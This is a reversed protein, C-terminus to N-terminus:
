ENLPRKEPMGARRPYKEPTAALKKLVVLYRTEVVGPLEIPILRDVGGGLIGLAGEAEHAEAHATEGKQAIARGGVRLFPLLYEVLVSLPAVARALAVDYTERYKRDQAVDEARGHVVDVNELGLGVVVHTCFDVKKSTAEVLTLKMSPCLIKIPIGPFGAGTGVDVVKLSANATMALCCTLSDLFHRVEIGSPDKIATLNFRQNWERLESSYWTFADLQRPSLERGLMKRVAEKLSFPEQM